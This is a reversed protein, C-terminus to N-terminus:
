MNLRKKIKKVQKLTQLNDPLIKLSETFFFLASMYEKRKLYAEGLGDYCIWPHQSYSLYMKFVNIASLLENKDLFDRGVTMIENEFFDPMPGLDASKIYGELATSDKCLNTEQLLRVLEKTKNYRQFQQQGKVNDPFLSPIVLIADEKSLEDVLKFQVSHTYDHYFFLNIIGESLDYITTYLTGGSNLPWKQHTTDSLAILYSLSTDAGMALMKRGKQYYPLDVADIDPTRSPCFNSALYTAEESKILTDAEVILFTGSKDVFMLMGQRLSGLDYNGLFTQVEEITGCTKMIIKMMDAKFIPKKSTNRPVYDDIAFGDYVLGKENMAGQPYMNDYGVFMSGYEGTKGKEFWIRTNSDWYDENNGVFTKGSQTIKYVTCAGSYFCNFVLFFSLLKLTM